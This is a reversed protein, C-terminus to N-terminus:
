LVHRERATYAYEVARATALLACERVLAARPGKARLGLEKSRESFRRLVRDLTFEHRGAWKAALRRIQVRNARLFLAAPEGGARTAPAFLRKLDEDYLATGGPEYISRKNRYYERLTLRLTSLDEVTGTRRVPPRQGRLQTMLADVYELKRLAPWGAYRERWSFGPTLWVAFTEAFDEDPHSQAYWADLHLVYRRSAPNPRYDKPYPASSRGFIKRWDKRRHLNFAHQLAHGAEHRLIQLCEKRTGGDVQLMFKREINELRPHALYFPVAIGPVGEPCFWEGSLWYHPRLRLGKARLERSLQAITGLLRRGGVRLRLDSLRLDLIREDPWREWHHRARRARKKRRPM